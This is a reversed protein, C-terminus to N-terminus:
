NTSTQDVAQIKEIAERAYYRLLADRGPDDAVTQLAPISEAAAPGINGLAIIAVEQFGLEEDQTVKSILGVLPKAMDGMKGVLEITEESYDRNQLATSLVKLPEETEGTIKWLAFAADAMVRKQPDRMVERVQDAVSIAEPGMLSLGELSRQKEKQVFADLTGALYEATDFETNPGIAGLAVAAWSRSSPIGTKHLELLKPIADIGDPGLKVLIRCAMCAVNFDQDSLTDAVEELVELVGEKSGQLAFLGLKRINSNESTLWKRIQPLYLHAGGMEKLAACGTANETPDPSEMKSRLHEAGTPGIKNLVIGAAIRVLEDRDFLLQGLAPVLTSQQQEVDMLKLVAELRNTAKPDNAIRLLDEQTDQQRDSQDQGGDTQTDGAYANSTVIGEGLNPEDSWALWGLVGTVVLVAVILLIFLKGM